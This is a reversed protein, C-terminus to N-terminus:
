YLLGDPTFQDRHRDLPAAATASTSVTGGVLFSDGLGIVVSRGHLLTLTPPLDLVISLPAGASAPAFKVQKVIAQAQDPTTGLLGDADVLVTDGVMVSTPATVFLETGPGGIADRQLALPAGPRLAVESGLGNLPLVLSAAGHGPTLPASLHLVGAATDVGTVTRLDQIEGAGDVRPEYIAVPEGVFFATADNVTISGDAGALYHALSAHGGTIACALAGAPLDAALPTALTLRQLTADVAAVNSAEGLFAGTTGDLFLLRTAAGAAFYSSDRVALLLDGPSRAVLLETCAGKVSLALLLFATSAASPPTASPTSSDRGWASAVVERVALNATQSTISPPSATTMPESFTLGITKEFSAGREEGATFPLPLGAHDIEIATLMGPFEDVTDLPNSLGQNIVLGAADESSIAFLVHNGFSWPFGGTGLGATWPNVGTVMVTPNLQADPAQLVLLEKWATPATLSNRAMVHYKAAGVVQKWSLSLGTQQNWNAAPDAGFVFDGADDLLWISGADVMGRTVRQSATFQGALFLTPASTSPTLTSPMGPGSDACGVLLLACAAAAVGSRVLAVAISRTSTAVDRM